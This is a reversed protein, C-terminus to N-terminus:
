CPLHQDFRSVFPHGKPPGRMTTQPLLSSSPAVIKPLSNAKGDELIFVFCHFHIWQAADCSLRVAFALQAKEGSVTMLNENLLLIICVLLDDM